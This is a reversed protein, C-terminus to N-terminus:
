FAEEKEAMDGADQEGDVTGCDPTHLRTQDTGAGWGLSAEKDCYDAELDYQMGAHSWRGVEGFSPELDGNPEDKPLDATETDADGDILDLVEHLLMATGSLGMRLQALQDPSM